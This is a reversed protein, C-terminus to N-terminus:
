FATEIAKPFMFGLLIVHRNPTECLYAIIGGIAACLIYLTKSLKMGCRMFVCLLNYPLAGFVMLYVTSRIFKILVSKRTEGDNLLKRFNQVLNPLLIFLVSLKVGTTLQRMFKHNLFGLCTMGPHLHESCVATRGRTVILKLHEPSFAKFEM